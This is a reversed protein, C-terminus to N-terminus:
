TISIAKGGEGGASGRKKQTKKSATTAGSGISRKKTACDLKDRPKGKEFIM